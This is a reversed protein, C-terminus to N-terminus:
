RGITVSWRWLLASLSPVSLADTIMDSFGSSAATRDLIQDSM